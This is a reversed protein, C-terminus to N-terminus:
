KNISYGTIPDSTDDDELLGEEEDRIRSSKGRKKM